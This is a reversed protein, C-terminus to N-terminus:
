FVSLVCNERKNDWKYDKTMGWMKNEKGGDKNKM